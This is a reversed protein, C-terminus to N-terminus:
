AAAEEPGNDAVDAMSIIKIRQGASGQRAKQWVMWACTVSDTKGDGTFSIRPLVILDTPPYDRLFQARNKCPELFSLRLLMAIGHAASQVALPVIQPAASFPPNTVAWQVGQKKWARWVKPDTADLHEDAPMAPDLDNTRIQADTKVLAAAIALEGSCCELVSLDRLQPVGFQILAEVAWAPTMYADLAKRVM